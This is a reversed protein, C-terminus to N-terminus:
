RKWSFYENKKFLYRGLRHDTRFAKGPASCQFEAYEQHLFEEVDQLVLVIPENVACVEDGSRLTPDGPGLVRSGLRAIYGWVNFDSM